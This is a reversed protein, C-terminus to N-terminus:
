IQSYTCDVYQWSVDRLQSYTSAVGQLFPAPLFTSLSHLLNTICPNLKTNSTVCLPSWDEECQQLQNTEKSSTSIETRVTLTTM